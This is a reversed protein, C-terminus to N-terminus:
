LHANGLVRALGTAPDVLRQQAANRIQEAFRPKCPLSVPETHVMQTSSQAGHEIHLRLVTSVENGLADTATVRILIDGTLGKPANYVFEGKRANFVLWAPLAGGDVLSARLRVAVNARSHAFADAPVRIAGSTGAVIDRQEIGHWVTLQPVPGFVQAVQWTGDDSEATQVQEGQRPQWAFIPETINQDPAIDSALLPHLASEFHLPDHWGLSIEPLPPIAMQTPRALREQDFLPPPVLDVTVVPPRIMSVPVGPDSVRNMAPDNDGFANDTFILEIGVIMGDSIIFRAGDGFYNGAPDQRRTFDYWGARTIPNGDLDRLSGASAAIAEASVYKLYGNFTEAPMKAMSIDIYVRMQTGTRMADIDSLANLGAIPELTFSIPDWMVAVATGDAMIGAPSPLSGGAIDYPMVKIGSLQSTADVSNNGSDSGAPAVWLSIIPRIQSLTGDKAETFYETNIWALTALATQEADQVGDGNHDGIMGKGQSAALTALIEEVNPDIGDRDLDDDLGQHSSIPQGDSVGGSYILGTGDDHIEAQGVSQITGSRVLLSFTETGEHVDDQEAGIAVRVLLTGSEPVPASTGDYQIWGVGDWYEINPLGDITHPISAKDQKTTEGLQLSISGAPAAITFVAYPSGENVIPRSVRVARDDDKVANRDEAGSENFTAGTAADGIIATGRTYLLGGAREISAQLVFDHPGEYTDDNIIPVRVLLLQGNAPVMVTSGPQYDAWELGNFYQMAWGSSGQGGPTGYDAGLTAKGELLELMVNDGTAAEVRFVAFSSGENVQVNSVSFGPIVNEATGTITITVTATGGDTTAVTFTDTVVQDADLSDMAGTTAYSWAGDATITFTGYTGAVANQPVVSAKATDPDSLTLM